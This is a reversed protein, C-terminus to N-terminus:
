GRELFLKVPTKVTSLAYNHRSHALGTMGAFAPIM